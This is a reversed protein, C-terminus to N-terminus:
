ISIERFFFYQERIEAHFQRFGALHLREYVPLPQGDHMNSKQPGRHYPRSLLGYWLRCHRRRQLKLYRNSTHTSRRDPIDYATEISKYHLAQLTRYQGRRRWSILRLFLREMDTVQRRLWDSGHTPLVFAVPEM